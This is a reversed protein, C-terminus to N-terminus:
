VGYVRVAYVMCWVDSCWVGYLIIISVSIMHNIVYNILIHKPTIRFYKFAKKVAM